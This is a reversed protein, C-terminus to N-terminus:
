ISYNVLDEKSRKEKRRCIHVLNKVDNRQMEMERDEAALKLALLGGDNALDHLGLIQIVRRWRTPKGKMKCEIIEHM